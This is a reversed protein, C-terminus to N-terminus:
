YTVALAVERVGGAEFMGLRHQSLLTTSTATKPTQANTGILGGNLM